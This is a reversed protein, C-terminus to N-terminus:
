KPMYPFKIYARRAGLWRKWRPLRKDIDYWRKGSDESFLSSLRNSQFTPNGGSIDSHDIFSGDIMPNEIPTLPLFRALREFISLCLHASYGSHGEDAFQKMMEVVAPGVMGAYDSDADFFGARRLESEAYEVLSM